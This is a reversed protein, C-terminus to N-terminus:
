LHIIEMIHRYERSSLWDGSRAPQLYCGVNREESINQGGLIETIAALLVGTEHESFFVLLCQFSGKIM